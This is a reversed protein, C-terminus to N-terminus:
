QKSGVWSLWFTLSSSAFFRHKTFEFFYIHFVIGHILVSERSEGCSDFVSAAKVFGGGGVAARHQVTMVFTHVTDM